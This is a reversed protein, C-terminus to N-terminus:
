GGSWPLSCGKTKLHADLKSLQVFCAAPCPKQCRAFLAAQQISAIPADELAGPQVMRKLQLPEQAEDLRPLPPPRPVLNTRVINIKQCSIFSYGHPFPAQKHFNGASKPIETKRSKERETEGQMETHTDRQGGRGVRLRPVM